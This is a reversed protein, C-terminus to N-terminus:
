KRKNSSALQPLAGSKVIDDLSLGEMKMLYDKVRDEHNKTLLAGLPIFKPRKKETSSNRDNSV